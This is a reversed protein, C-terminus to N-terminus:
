AADKGVLENYIIQASLTQRRRSRDNIMGSVERPNQKLRFILERILEFSNTALGNNEKVWAVKESSLVHSGIYITPRGSMVAMDCLNSFFGVVVHTNSLAQAFDSQDTIKDFCGKNFASGRPHPRVKLMIDSDSNLESLFYFTEKLISDDFEAREAVPQDIFLIHLKDFCNLRDNNVNRSYFEFEPSGSVVIQKARM